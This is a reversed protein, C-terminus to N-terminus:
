RSPCPTNQTLGKEYRFCTTKFQSLFRSGDLFYNSTKSEHLIIAMFLFIGISIFNKDFISDRTKKGEMWSYLPIILFATLFYFLFRKVSNKNKQRYTQLNCTNRSGKPKELIENKSDSLIGNKVYRCYQESIINKNRVLSIAERGADFINSVKGPIVYIVDNLQCQFTVASRFERDTKIKALVAGVWTLYRFRGKFEPWFRIVEDECRPKVSDNIFSDNVTSLPSNAEAATKYSGMITWKGHTVIYKRKKDSNSKEKNDYPMICPFWGDMVIFSFPLATEKHDEYVLALCPQYVIEMKFPLYSPEPLLSQYGTTNIVFDFKLPGRKNSFILFKEEKEISTVEYNCIVKVGKENLYKWFTKRLREGLVVSPEKKLNMALHLNKYGWEETNIKKAGECKKCIKEFYEPGVKSPQQNADLIGVGYTSYEHPNVLEPYTKIFEVYGEQCSAFTKESRPYHPGMHLRIGFKGSVEEFLDSNKELITVDYKAKRFELALHVGYWGGGIIAIKMLVGSFSVARKNQVV